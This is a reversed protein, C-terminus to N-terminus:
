QKIEPLDVQSSQWHRIGVVVGKEVKAKGGYYTNHYLYEQVVLKERQEKTM